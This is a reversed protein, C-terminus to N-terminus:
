TGTCGSAPDCTATVCADPPSIQFALLGDASVPPTAENTVTFPVYFPGTQDSAPTWTFTGTLEELQAGPPLGTSAYHLTTGQPDTASIAFQITNGTYSAYVGRAPIVPTPIPTTTSTTTPTVTATATSTLTATATPMLTPTKTPAITSTPTGTA